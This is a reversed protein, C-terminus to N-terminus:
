LETNWKSLKIPHLYLYGKPFDNMLNKLSGNYPELEAYEEKTWLPKGRLEIDKEQTIEKAALVLATPLAVEVFLRTASFIGCFHCFTKIETGSVVFIDAYSGVLPYSLHYQKPLIKNKLYRFLFTKDKSLTKKWEKNNRPVRWIQDFRLPEVQLDYKKLKAVAEEYSPIFSSAEVGRPKLRWRFAEGIRPWYGKSSGLSFVGPIFSTDKKLKLVDTVNNENIIPNIIMDDAVFFYHSFSEDFYSKLGQAIYGQFYLSADYVAIVNEKDGQYFPVLHFINSFRGQYIRELIDINKNYQHNYIIVLAIKSM